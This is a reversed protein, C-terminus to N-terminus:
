AIVGSPQAVEAYTSSVSTSPAVHPVALVVTRAIVGIGVYM